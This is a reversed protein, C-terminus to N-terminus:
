YHKHLQQIRLITGFLITDISRNPMYEYVLLKEHEQLCVGVLRVLNKQQLKAVLVLENKLEEIGQGSSMSLRKVAIEEGSPLVGQMLALVRKNFSYM